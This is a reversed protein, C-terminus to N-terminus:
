RRDRLMADIEGFLREETIERFDVHLACGDRAAKQVNGLQDGFMPIGLLPVGYYKAETVSNM